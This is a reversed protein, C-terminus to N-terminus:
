EWIKLFQVLFEEFGKGSADGPISEPIASIDGPIGGSAEWPDENFIKKSVM